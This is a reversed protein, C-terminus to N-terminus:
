KTPLSKLYLFISQLESDDLPKLVTWPMDKSQNTRVSTTFTELSWTGAIGTSTIDPAHPADPAPSKGGTLNEGHCDRCGMVRVLYNGYQVTSDGYGVNVNATTVTHNIVEASLIDKGFGGAALLVKGMFSMDPEGMDHDVPPVSKFYAIIAGLDKDNLYAFNMSPMGILARGEPDVGDRLARIWDPDTFEGGAGGEGPTLNPAPVFGITKDDVLAKGSFDEGHCDACLVAAWKKGQQISAQDTPIAVSAPQVDYKKTLRANGRAYLVGVLVAALVLLSGLAIGTWKFFKTLM